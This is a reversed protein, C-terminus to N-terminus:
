LYTNIEEDSWTGIFTGNPLKLYTFIVPGSSWPECQLVEFYKEHTDSKEFVGLLIEEGFMGTTFNQKDEESLCEPAVQILRNECIFEKSCQSLGVFQTERSMITGVERTRNINPLFM